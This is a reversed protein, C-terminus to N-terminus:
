HERTMMVPVVMGAAAPRDIQAHTLVAVNLLL